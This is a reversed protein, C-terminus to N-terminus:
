QCVVLDVSWSCFIGGPGLGAVARRRALESDFTDVGGVVVDAEPGLEDRGVLDDFGLLTTRNLRGFSTRVRKRGSSVTVLVLLAFADGSDCNVVTAESSGVTAVFTLDSDSEVDVDFSSPASADVAPSTLASVEDSRFAPSFRACPVPTSPSSLSLAFALALFLCLGYTDM